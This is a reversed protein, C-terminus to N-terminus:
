RKLGGFIKIKYANFDDPCGIISENTIKSETHPLYKVHSPFYSKDEIITVESTLNEEKLKNKLKVCFHCFPSSYLVIQKVHPPQIGHTNTEQNNEQNNEQDNEQDLQYKKKM